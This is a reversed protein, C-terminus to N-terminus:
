DPKYKPMAARVERVRERAQALAERAADVGAEAEAILLKHAAVDDLWRKYSSRDHEGAQAAKRPRGRRRVGGGELVERDHKAREYTFYLLFTDANHALFAPAHPWWALDAPQVMVYFAVTMLPFNKTFTHAVQPHPAPGSYPTRDVEVTAPMLPPLHGCAAAHKAIREVAATDVPWWAPDYGHACLRERLTDVAAPLHTQLYSSPTAPDALQPDIPFTFDNPMTPM